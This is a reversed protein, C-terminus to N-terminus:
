AEGRDLNLPTRDSFAIKFPLPFGGSPPECSDTVSGDLEVFACSSPSWVLCLRFGTAQVANQVAGILFSRCGATLSGQEDFPRPHVILCCGTGIQAIATPGRMVKILERQNVGAATRVVLYPEHHSPCFPEPSAEGSWDDGKWKTLAVTLIPKQV